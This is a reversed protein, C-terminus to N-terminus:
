RQLPSSSTLSPDTIETPMAVDPYLQRYEDAHERLHERGHETLVIMPTRETTRGARLGTYVEVEEILAGSAHGVLRDVAKEPRAM